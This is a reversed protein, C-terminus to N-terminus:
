HARATRARLVRRIDFLHTLYFSSRQVGDTPERDDVPTTSREWSKRNTHKNRARALCFSRFCMRITEIVRERRWHSQIKFNTEQQDNYSSWLCDTYLFFFVVDYYIKGYNLFFYPSLSHAFYISQQRNWVRIQVNIQLSHVVSFLLICFVYLAHIHAQTHTQTHSSSLILVHLRM